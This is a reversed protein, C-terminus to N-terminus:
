PLPREEPATAPKAAQNRCHSHCFVPSFRSLADFLVQKEGTTFISRCSWWTYTKWVHASWGPFWCIGFFSTCTPWSITANTVGTPKPSVWPWKPHINLCTWRWWPYPDWILSLVWHPWKPFPWEQKKLKTWVDLLCRPIIIFDHFM